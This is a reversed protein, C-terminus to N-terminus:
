VLELFPAALSEAGNSGNEAKVMMAEAKLEEPSPTPPENEAEAITRDDITAALGLGEGLSRLAKLSDARDVLGSEFANTVAGLIQQAGQARELEDLEETLPEFEFGIDPDVEGFSSLQVLRLMTELNPRFFSEQYSHITDQFARLEGASSANLGARQIGLLKLIPIRSLSSMHEQAQAQLLDLGSLPISVNIFEETEKDLIMTGFNGKMENFLRTRMVLKAANGSNIAETVNAKIVNHTFRKVIEGVAARTSLWNEVTPRIQQTLSQGGFMYAPKLIDPVERAVFTLLRTKDVSTAM